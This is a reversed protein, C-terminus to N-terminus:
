VGTEMVFVKKGDVIASEDAIATWGNGRYWNAIDGDFTFLYLKKFGMRRAKIKATTILLKGIGRKRYSEEVCLGGLWPFLDPRTGGDEMRICCMGIAKNDDLAVYALPLTETNLHAKFRDQIEAESPPSSWKKGLTDCWIKALDPIYNPFEALLKIKIM